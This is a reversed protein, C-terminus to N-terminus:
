QFSSNLFFPIKSLDWVYIFAARNREMTWLHLAPSVIVLSDNGDDDPCGDHTEKKDNQYAEKHDSIAASISVFPNSHRLTWQLVPSPTITPPAISKNKWKNKEWVKM